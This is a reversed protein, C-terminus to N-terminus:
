RAARRVREAMEPPLRRLGLGGRWPIPAVPRMNAIVFGYPGTFWPSSSERVCAVIECLGVIAGRPLEEAPPLTVPVPLQLRGAAYAPDLALAAHIAVEGRYRTPWPRNEIDKIGSVLLWAWPQWLTLVRLEASM